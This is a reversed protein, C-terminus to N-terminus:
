KKPPQVFGEFAKEFKDKITNEAAHGVYNAMERKMANDDLHPKSVTGTIPLRVTQLSKPANAPLWKQPVPLDAVLSLSGDFGVSGSTRVTMEGLPWDVNQHYIRGNNIHFPVAMEHPLTLNPKTNFLVALEQMLPGPAIKASHITITGQIDGQNSDSLQIYNKPQLELSIEGDSDRVGWFIPAIYGLSNSAMEPTIKAHQIGTAKGFTLLAPSRTLCIYPELQLKGQNFTTDNVHIRV